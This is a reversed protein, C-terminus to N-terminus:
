IPKTIKTTERSLPVRSFFFSCFFIVVSGCSGICLIDKNNPFVHFLFFPTSCPGNDQVFVFDFSCHIDECGGRMGGCCGGTLLILPSSYPSVDLLTSCLPSLSYPCLAFSFRTLASAYTYFPLDVVNLVNFARQEQNVQVMCFMYRM